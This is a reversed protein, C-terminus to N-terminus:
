EMVKKVGRSESKADARKTRMTTKPVFGQRRLESILVRLTPNESKLKQAQEEALHSMQSGALAERLDALLTAIQEYADRNRERVLKETEQLTQKPHAAMDALMKARKRAAAEAAKQSQEHHIEKARTELEAISRDGRASPWSSTSTSKQFEALLERRAGAHADAMWEALWRDKITAPQSRLWEAFQPQRDAPAGLAPSGEAAAAILSQDLGFFKVLARQAPSLKNLGAPVAVQKSEEPDHNVDGDIALRSLYVPRLDGDMIEARVAVLRGVLEDIDWLEEIQDPEFCPEMCLIGGPGQKDKEFRLSDGDLYLNATAVDPLGHPLRVMLTRTGFNAYHVFVDYGRRLMELTDGHFDGFHYENDFAWPTIEARTSQRHMFDLNKQSVPGDIARFAIRQYESM